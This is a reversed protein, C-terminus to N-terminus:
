SIRLNMGQRKSKLFIFLLLLLLLNYFM